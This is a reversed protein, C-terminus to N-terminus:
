SNDGRWLENYYSENSSKLSPAGLYKVKKCVGEKNETGM